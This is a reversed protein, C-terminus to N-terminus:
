HGAGLFLSLENLGVIYSLIVSGEMQGWGLCM